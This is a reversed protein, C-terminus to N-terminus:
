YENRFAAWYCAEVYIIQSTTNNAIVETMARISTCTTATAQACDIWTRTLGVNNGTAVNFKYYPRVTRTVSTNVGCNTVVASSYSDLNMLNGSLSNNNDLDIATHLITPAQTEGPACKFLFTLSVQVLCYQDFIGVYHAYNTIGTM